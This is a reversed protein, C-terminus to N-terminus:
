AAFQYGLAFYVGLVFNTIALIFILLWGWGKKQTYAAIAMMVPFGVLLYRPMCVLNVSGNTLPAVILLLNWVWLYFPIYNILLLSVVFMVLAYCANFLLYYNAPRVIGDFLITLPNSTSTHWMIQKDHVYKLLDGTTFYCFLFFGIIGVPILLLYLAKARFKLGNIFVYRLMLPVLILVGFPRTLSLLFGSLGSLGYGKREFFYICMLSFCIFPAESFAGSLLYSGPFFCLVIVAIMATKKNRYVELCLLYIFFSALLLFGNASIIGGIFNNNFPIGALKMTAPYLPFFGYNSNGPVTGKDYGCNAVYLYWGSDWCGLCNLVKNNSYQYGQSKVELAKFNHIAFIFCLLILVRSSIFLGLIRFFVNVGIKGM